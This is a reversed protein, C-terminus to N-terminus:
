CDMKKSKSLGRKLKEEDSKATASCKRFWDMLIDDKAEANSPM